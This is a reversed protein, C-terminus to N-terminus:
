KRRPRRIALDLCFGISFLAAARTLSDPAGVTICVAALGLAALTLLGFGIVTDAVRDVLPVAQRKIERAAEKELLKLIFHLTEAEQSASAFTLEAGYRPKFPNAPDGALRKRMLAERRQHVVLDIARKHEARM